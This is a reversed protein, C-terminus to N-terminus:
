ASRRCGIRGFVVKKRTEVPKMSQYGKTDSHLCPGPHILESPNLKAERAVILSASDQGEAFGEGAKDNKRGHQVGFSKESQQRFLQMEEIGSDKNKKHFIETLLKSTSFLHSWCLPRLGSRQGGLM